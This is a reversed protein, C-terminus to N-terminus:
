ASPVEPFTPSTRARDELGAALDSAVAALKRLARAEEAPDTGETGAWILIAHGTVGLTGLELYASGDDYVHSRINDPTLKVSQDVHVKM